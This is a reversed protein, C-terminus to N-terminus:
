NRGFDWRPFELVTFTSGKESVADNLAEELINASDPISKSYDVVEVQYTIGDDVASVITAPAPKGIAQRAMPKYITKTKTPTVPFYNYVGLSADRYQKWEAHAPLMAVFMAAFGIIIARM